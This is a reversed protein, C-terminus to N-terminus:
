NMNEEEPEWENLSFRSTSGDLASLVSQIYLQAAQDHTPSFTLITEVKLPILFNPDGMEFWPTIMYQVGEDVFGSYIKYPKEVMITGSDRIGNLYAIISEGNMLKFTQINNRDFEKKM